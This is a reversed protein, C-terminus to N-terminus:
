GNGDIDEVTLGEIEEEDYPYPRTSSRVWKPKDALAWEAGDPNMRPCLYFARTELARTIDPDKGYGQLLTQMFYLTAASAAVETAHINGDIWYAPKEEAPGTARQTVALVWIDRGEHSKGISQLQALEPHEAAVEHLLKSLEDYRYFRDFAIQTMSHGRRPDHGAVFRQWEMEPPEM